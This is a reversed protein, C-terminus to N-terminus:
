RIKTIDRSYFLGLTWENLIYFRKRWSFFKFLYITRWMWWAFKGSIKVGGVDGVAYWKGISVLSGKSKYKFIKLKNDNGYITSMVNQFVINAQQTAVQALMPAPTGDGGTSTDGLVFINKSARLFSDVIIRGSPHRNVGQIDLISPKVGAVWLTLGSPIKTTHDELGIAVASKIEVFDKGVSVVSTAIKVNIDKKILENFATKRLKPHFQSLLDPSSALLTISVDEKLISFGYSPLLTKFVLESLEAAIEVGTAGGGVVVFSLMKKRLDSDHVISADEFADIIKSRLTLADLLNKLTLSNEEAGPTGYFNTEAGSAMVLYDYVIQCKDTTITQSATDISKVSGQLVAVGLPKGTSRSPKFIQRLPEAASAHSLGGTAVEHLLPTFLFYNTRNIITVKIKGKKALKELKRATYIGGFGGGVIVIHPINM